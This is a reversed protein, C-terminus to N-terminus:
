ANPRRELARLSVCLRKLGNSRRDSSEDAFVRETSTVNRTGITDRAIRFNLHRRESDIGGRASALRELVM